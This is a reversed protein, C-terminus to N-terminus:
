FLIKSKNLQLFEEDKFPIKMQKYNLAYNKFKEEVIGKELLNTKVFGGIYFYGINYIHYSDGYEFEENRTDNYFHIKEIYYKCILGDEKLNKLDSCKDVKIYGNDYKFVIFHYLYVEEDSYYLLNNNFEKETQEYFNLKELM